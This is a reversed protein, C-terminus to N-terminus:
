PAFMVALELHLDQHVRRLCDECLVRGDTPTACVVCSINLTVTMVGGPADSGGRIGWVLDMIGDFMLGNGMGLRIAQGSQSRM